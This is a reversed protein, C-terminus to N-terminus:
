KKKLNILVIESQTGVRQTPGWTGVGSSTIVSMKNLYNLGYSFEKFLKKVIWPGPWVQGNHVHGSLVLDFGLSEVASLNNPAHKILIKPIDKSINLSKLTNILLTNDSGTTYDVGAIQLGDVNVIKNSLVVVGASALSSNFESIDGYDEHNGPAFYIGKEANIGKLSMAIEKDNTPPGDYYDGAIIVLEPNQENIKKVLKRAFNINRVNGFHSDSFMLINKNNWNESLNDLFVTYKTTKIQYSNIVGYISFGIAIIFLFIGIIRVTTPSWSFLSNIGFIILIILSALFLFYLTGLWIASGKYFISGIKTYSSQAILTALVFSVTGVSLLIRLTNILYINTINFVILISKYVIFHGFGILFFITLIFFIIPFSIMKM